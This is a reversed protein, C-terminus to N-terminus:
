ISASKSLTSCRTAGQESIPRVVMLVETSLLKEKEVRLDGNSVEIDGWEGESDDMDSYEEFDEENLDYDEGSFDSIEVSDAVEGDVAEGYSSLFEVDSESLETTDSFTPQEAIAKSARSEISKEVPATPNKKNEATGACSMASLAISLALQFRVINRFNFGMFRITYM